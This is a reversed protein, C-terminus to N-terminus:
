LRADEECTGRTWTVCVLTRTGRPESAFENVLRRRQDPLTIGCHAAAAGLWELTFKTSAFLRGPRTGPHPDGVFSRLAQLPTRGELVPMTHEGGVPSTSGTWWKVWTLLEEVFAEFRLAPADPDVPRRNAKV